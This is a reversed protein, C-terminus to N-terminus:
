ASQGSWRQGLLWMAVQRVHLATCAGDGARAALQAASEDSSALWLLRRDQWRQHYPHAPNRAADLWEGFRVRGLLRLRDRASPDLAGHQIAHDVCAAIRTAEARSTRLVRWAIAVFAPVGVVPYLTMGIGSNWTMHLLVAGAYGSLVWLVRPTGRTRRAAVVGLATLATFLPHLFPTMVGRLLVVTALGGVGDDTLAELYYDINEVVAFGLGVCLAYVVADLRSDLHVSYRRLVWLLAAAKLAEEGIPASVVAAMSDGLAAGVLGNTTGSVATAVVAGWLFTRFLLWAPEPEHRDLWLALTLMPIAPGLALLLVVAGFQGRTLVPLLSLGMLVSCITVLVGSEKRLQVLFDHHRVNVDLLHDAILRQAIEHPHAVAAGAEPLSSPSSGDTQPLVTM